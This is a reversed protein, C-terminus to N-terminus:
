CKLLETNLDKKVDIRIIRIGSLLAILEDQLSVPKGSASLDKRLGAIVKGGSTAVGPAVGSIIHAFSKEIKDDLTDSPSYIRKGAGTIGGRAGILYGSGLVDQVRELGISESIFPDILTM